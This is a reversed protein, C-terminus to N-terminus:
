TGRVTSAPAVHLPPPAVAASAKGIRFLRMVVVFFIPVFLIALVTASAM